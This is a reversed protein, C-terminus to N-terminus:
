AAGRQTSVALARKVERQVVRRLKALHWEPDSLICGPGYNRRWYEDFEPTEVVDPASM